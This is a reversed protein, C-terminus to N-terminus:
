AAIVYPATGRTAPAAVTAPQSSDVAPERPPPARPSAVVVRPADDRRCFWARHSTTVADPAAASALARATPADTSAMECREPAAPGPRDHDGVRAWCAEAGDDDDVEELVDDERPCQGDGSSGPM